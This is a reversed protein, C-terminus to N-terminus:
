PYDTDITRGPLINDPLDQILGMQHLAQSLSTPRSADTDVGLPGEQNILAQVERQLLPDSMVHMLRRLTHMTSTYLNM